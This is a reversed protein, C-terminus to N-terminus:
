SEAKAIAARAMFLTTSKLRSGEDDGERESKKIEFVLSRELLKALELLEDRQAKLEPITLEAVDVDIMSDEMGPHGRSRRPHEVEQQGRAEQRLAVDRQLGPQARGQNSRFLTTSPVLIYTRTSRPPRRIM